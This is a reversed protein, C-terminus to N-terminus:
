CTFQPPPGGSAALGSIQPGAPAWHTNQWNAGAWSVGAQHPGSLDMPRGAASESAVVAVKALPGLLMKRFAELFLSCVVEGPLKHVQETVRM